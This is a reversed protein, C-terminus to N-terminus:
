YKFIEMSLMSRVSMLKHSLPLPNLTDGEGIFNKQHSGEGENKFFSKPLEPSNGLDSSFKGINKLYLHLHAPCDSYTLQLIKNDFIL